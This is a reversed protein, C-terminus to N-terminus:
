KLFICSPLERQKHSFSEHSEELTERCALWLIEINITRPKPFIDLRAKAINIMDRLHTSNGPQKIYLYTTHGPQFYAHEQAWFQSTVDEIAVAESRSLVIHESGTLAWLRYNYLLPAAQGAAGRITQSPIIHLDNGGGTLCTHLTRFKIEIGDPVTFLGDERRYNGHGICIVRITNFSPPGVSESVEMPQKKAQYTTCVICKIDETPHLLAGCNCCLRPGSEVGGVHSAAHQNHARCAQCLTDPSVLGCRLCPYQKPQPRTLAKDRRAM